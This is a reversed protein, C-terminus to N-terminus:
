IFLLTNGMIVDRLYVHVPMQWPSMYLTLSTPARPAYYPVLWLPARRQIGMM